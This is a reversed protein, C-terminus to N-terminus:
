TGYQHNNDLEFSNWLVLEPRTNVIGLLKGGDADVCGDVQGPENALTHLIARYEFSRDELVDSISCICVM